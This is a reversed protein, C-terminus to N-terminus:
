SLVLSWLTRTILALQAAAPDLRDVLHKFLRNGTWELSRDLMFVDDHQPRVIEGVWYAWYTLNALQCTHDDLEHHVFSRLPEPDGRCASAVAASRRAVWTVGFGSSRGFRVDRRQEEHIWHRSDRRVDYGLLFTAQRRLLADGEVHSSAAAHLLHDFFRTRTEADLIPRDAVPGRRRATASAGATLGDPADGTFPWTILSTLERRHVHMALPHGTTGHDVAAGAGSAHAIVLDAEMAERLLAFQEYSAGAGMLRGRLQALDSMRLSTLPRRGSEWGQVTAVDVAVTEAAAVQTLGVSERILKLAYGSVCAGARISSAQARRPSARDM